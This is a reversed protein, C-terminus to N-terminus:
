LEQRFLLKFQNFIIKRSWPKYQEGDIIHTIQDPPAAASTNIHLFLFIDAPIRPPAVAIQIRNSTRSYWKSVKTQWPKISESATNNKHDLALEKM